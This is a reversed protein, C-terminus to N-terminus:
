FVGMTTSLEERNWSVHNCVWWITHGEDSRSITLQIFHIDIGDISARFQPLRNLAAEHTRWDYRELWYAALEKMYDLNTGYSWGGDDPMEHWQYAAVKARIRDLTADRVAVSFPQPATM